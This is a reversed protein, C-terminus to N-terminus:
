SAKNRNLGGPLVALIAAVVQAARAAINPRTTIASYTVPWLKPISVTNKSEATLLIWVGTGPRGDNRVASLKTSIPPANSRKFRDSREPLLIHSTQVTATTIIARRAM